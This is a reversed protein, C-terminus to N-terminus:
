YPHARMHTHTHTHTSMYSLFYTFVDNEIFAHVTRVDTAFMYILYVITRNDMYGHNDMITTM